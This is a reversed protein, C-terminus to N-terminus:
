FRFMKATVRIHESETSFHDINDGKRSHPM